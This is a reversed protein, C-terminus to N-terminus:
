DEDDEDYERDDQISEWYIIIGLGMTDEKAHPLERGMENMYLVLDRYTDLENSRSVVIGVCTHGFMCRGSYNSRYELDNNECFLEILECDKYDDYTDM